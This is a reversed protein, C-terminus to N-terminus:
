SRISALWDLLLADAATLRQSPIIQFTGALFELAAPNVTPFKPELGLATRAPEYLQVDSRGIESCFQANDHESLSGLLATICELQDLENEGPFMVRQRFMEAVICGLSWMDIACTYKHAHCLLEPATYDPADLIVHPRTPELMNQMCSFDCIKILGTEEIMINSPELNCHAVNHGHLFALGHVIQSTTRRMFGDSFAIRESTYEETLTHLSISYLPFVFHLLDNAPATSEGFSAQEGPSSFYLLLSILQPHQFRQLFSLEQAVNPDTTRMSKIAVKDGSELQAVSMSHTHGIAGYALVWRDDFPPEAYLFSVQVISGEPMAASVSTSSSQLQADSDITTDFNRSGQHHAM